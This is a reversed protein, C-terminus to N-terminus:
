LERRVDGRGVAGGDAAHDGIIRGAGMGDDMAFGDIMHQFEANKQRVAADDVSSRYRRRLQRLFQPSLIVLPRTIAGNLLQRVRVGALDFAAEGLDQPADAAIVEITEHAVRGMEVQGIEKDTGFSRESDNQLGLQPQHANGSVLGKQDHLKGVQEFGERRHWANQRVLRRRDFDHIAKDQIGGLEIGVRGAQAIKQLAVWTSDKDDLKVAISRGSQRPPKGIKFAIQAATAKAIMEQMGSLGACARMQFNRM